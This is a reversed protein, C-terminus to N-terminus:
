RGLSGLRESRGNSSCALLAHAQTTLRKALAFSQDNFETDNLGGKIQAHSPMAGLLSLSLGREATALSARAGRFRPKKSQPHGPLAGCARPYWGAM